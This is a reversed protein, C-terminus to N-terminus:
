VIRQSNLLSLSAYVCWTVRKINLYKPLSEIEKIMDHNHNGEICIFLTGFEWFVYGKETDFNYKECIRAVRKAREAAISKKM